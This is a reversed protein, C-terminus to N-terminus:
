RCIRKVNECYIKKTFLASLSSVAKELSKKPKYAYVDHFMKM